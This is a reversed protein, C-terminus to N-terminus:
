VGALIERCAATHEIAPMENIPISRRHTVDRWVRIAAQGPLNPDFDVVARRLFAIAGNNIAAAEIRVMNANSSAIEAESGISRTRRSHLSLLPEIANFIELTMSPMQRLEDIIELQKGDNLQGANVGQGSYSKIEAAIQSALSPTVGAREFERSLELATALNVNLRENEDSAVVRVLQGAFACWVDLYLPDNSGPENKFRWTALKVAGDAATQARIRATHAALVKTQSSVVAIYATAIAAVLAVSGIVILLANGSQREREGFHNRVVGLRHLREILRKLSRSSRRLDRM